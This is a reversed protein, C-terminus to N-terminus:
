YTLSHYEELRKASKHNNVIHSCNKIVNKVTVKKQKKKRRGMKGLKKRAMKSEMVGNIKM